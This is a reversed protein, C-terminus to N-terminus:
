LEQHKEAKLRELICNKLNNRIRYLKQKFATISTQLDAAATELPTKDEYRAQLMKKAEDPLAGVCKRLALLWPQMNNSDKEAIDALSELIGPDLTCTQNKKYRNLYTLCEFRAITFAWAKFNTGIEFNDKKRILILNVDQQIDRADAPNFIM